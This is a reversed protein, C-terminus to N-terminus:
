SDNKQRIDAVVQVIADVINEFYDGELIINPIHLTYYGNKDAWYERKFDSLIQKPNTLHQLGDIEINLKATEIYIDIHKHGDWYQQHVSINRKRLAEALKNEHKTPIINTM